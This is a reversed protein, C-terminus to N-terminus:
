FILGPSKNQWFQPALRAPGASVGFTSDIGSFGGAGTFVGTFYM